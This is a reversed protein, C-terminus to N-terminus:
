MWFSPMRKLNIPAALTKGPIAEIKQRTEMRTTIQMTRKTQKIEM